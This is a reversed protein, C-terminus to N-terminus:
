PLKLLFRVIKRTRESFLSPTFYAGAARKSAEGYTPYPAIYSAMAGIKMKKSIALVWPQIMEGAQPALISAGLIRGKGDVVAVV